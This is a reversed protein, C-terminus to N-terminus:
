GTYYFRESRCGADYGAPKKKDKCTQYLWGHMKKGDFVMM